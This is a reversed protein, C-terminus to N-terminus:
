PSIVPDVLNYKVRCAYINPSSQGGDITFKVMMKHTDGYTLVFPCAQSMKHTNGTSDFYFYEKTVQFTNPDFIDLNNYLPEVDFIQINRDLEPFQYIMTFESHENTYTNFRVDVDRLGLYFVHRIDDGSYEDEYHRQRLKFKLQSSQIPDFTFVMNGADVAIFKTGTINGFIDVIDEEKCLHHAKFGPISQWAGNSKYQVDLIDVYGVPFPRIVIENILRTTIIDEPLGIIIENEIQSVDSSTKVKRLWITGDNGDFANLVNTDEISYITDITEGVPSTPAQDINVRFNDPGVYVQLSPPVLYEDYTEDYLRTKSISNTVHATISNSARDIRAAYSDFQEIETRAQDYAYCTQYRYDSQAMMNEYQEKIAMMNSLAAQLRETYCKSEIHNSMSMEYVSKQLQNAKNFLDLIDDFAEKQMENLAHSDMRGRYKFERDQISPINRVFLNSM